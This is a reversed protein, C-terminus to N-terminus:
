DRTWRDRLREAVATDPLRQIEAVAAAHAAHHQAADEHQKLREQNQGQTQGARFLLYQSFFDLVQRALALLSALM